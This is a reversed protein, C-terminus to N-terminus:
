GHNIHTTTGSRCTKPVRNHQVTSSAHICGGAIWSSEKNTWMSVAWYNNLNQMHAEHEMYDTQRDEHGLHHVIMGQPWQWQVTRCDWTDMCRWQRAARSSYIKNFFFFCFTRKLCWQEWYIKYVQLAKYQADDNNISILERLMQPQLSNIPRNFLLIAPSPLGTAIPTSWIHLLALSVDQNTDLSKQNHIECIRHM